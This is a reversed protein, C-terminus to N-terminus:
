RCNGTETSTMVSLNMGIDIFFKDGIEFVDVQSDSHSSPRHLVDQQLLQSKESLAALLMSLRM